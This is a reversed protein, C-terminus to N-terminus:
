GDGDAEQGEALRGWQEHAALWENFARPGETNWWEEFAIAGDDDTFSLFVEHEHSHRTVEEAIEVRTFRSCLARPKCENHKRTELDM